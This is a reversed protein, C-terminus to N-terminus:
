GQGGGYTAIAQIAALGSVVIVLLAIGLKARDEDERARARELDREYQAEQEATLWEPHEYEALQYPEDKM